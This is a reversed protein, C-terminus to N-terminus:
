EVIEAAKEEVADSAAAQVEAAAEAIEEKAEVAAAEVSEVADAIPSEIEPMEGTATVNSDGVEVGLDTSVDTNDSPQCGISATLICAASLLRLSMRM